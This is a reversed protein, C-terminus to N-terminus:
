SLSSLFCSCRTPFSSLQCNPSCGFTFSQCKAGCRFHTTVVDLSVKSWLFLYFSVACFAHAFEEEVSPYNPKRRWSAAKEGISGLCAGLDSSSRIPSM